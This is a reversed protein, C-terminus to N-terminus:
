KAKKSPNLRRAELVLELEVAQVFKRCWGAEDSCFYYTIDANLLHKGPPATSSIRIPQIVPEETSLYGSSSDVIQTLKGLLKALKAPSVSITAEPDATVHIGEVPTFTVRLDIKDGPMATQKSLDVDIRVYENQKTDAGPAESGIISLALLMIFALNM